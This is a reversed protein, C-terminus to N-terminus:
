INEHALLRLVDLNKKNWCAACALHGPNSEQHSGVKESEKIIAEYCRCDKVSLLLSPVPSTTFYLSVPGKLPLPM